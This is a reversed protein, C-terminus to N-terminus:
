SSHTESENLSPMRPPIYAHDIGMLVTAIEVHMMSVCGDSYIRCHYPLKHIGNMAMIKRFTYGNDAKSKLDVKFKATSRFKATSSHSKSAVVPLSSMTRTTVSCSKM